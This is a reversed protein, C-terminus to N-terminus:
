RGLSKKLAAHSVTPLKGARFREVARAVKRADRRDEATLRRFEAKPVLVFEAGNMRVTAYTTAM